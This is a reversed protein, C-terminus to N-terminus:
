WVRRNRSEKIRELMKRREDLEVRKSVKDVVSRKESQRSQWAQLLDPGFRIAIMTLVAVLNFAFWTWRSWYRVDLMAAVRPTQRPLLQIMLVLFLIALLLELWAFGLRYRRYGNM